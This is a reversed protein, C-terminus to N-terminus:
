RSQAPVSAQALPVQATQAVGQDPVSDANPSFVHSYGFYFGISLCVIFLIGLASLYVKTGMIRDTSYTIKTETCGHM